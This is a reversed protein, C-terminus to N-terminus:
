ANQAALHRQHRATRSHVGKNQRTYKGGCPCEFKEDDRSTLRMEETFAWRKQVRESVVGGAVFSQHAEAKVHTSWNQRTYRGGCACVLHANAYAYAEEATRHAAQMNVCLPANLAIYHQERARLEDRSGCPFAELLSITADGMEILQFSSVYHYNGVLWHRYDSRHGRMRCALTPETTSGIYIRDTSPSTIKYVKGRQYKDAM